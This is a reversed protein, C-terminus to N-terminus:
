EELSRERQYKVSNELMYIFMTARQFKEYSMYQRSASPARKSAARSAATAAKELRLNKETRM